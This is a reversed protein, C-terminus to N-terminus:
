RCEVAGHTREDRSLTYSCERAGAPVEVEVPPAARDYSCALIGRRGDERAGDVEWVIRRGRQEPKLIHIGAAPPGGHLEVGRLPRGERIAPCVVAAQATAPLLLAALALLRM